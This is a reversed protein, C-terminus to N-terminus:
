LKQLPTVSVSGSIDINRVTVPYTLGITLFLDGERAEDTTFSGAASANRSNSGAAGWAAYLLRPVGNIYPIVEFYNDAEPTALFVYNVLYLYGQPLVITTSNELRIENGQNFVQLFPLESGSAPSSMVGYQAFFDPM